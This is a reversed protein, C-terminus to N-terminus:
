KGDNMEKLLKRIAEIGKQYVITKYNICIDGNPKTFKSEVVRFYGADVYRQMPQNGGNLLKNDRLIEFLRNRGVGMNLVKAVTAMEVANTSDTVQDFFEVKPAAEVLQLQQQEIIEQQEVALLLAEKFTAPVKFVSMKEIELEKWRKILRARAEDNFKTAIYLCEDKDLEYMPRKEGKADKYEVLPFSRENVKVWAPEMTRIAELVDSHRKGTIDAIQLSTMSDKEFIKIESM